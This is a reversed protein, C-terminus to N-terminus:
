AVHASKYVFTALDLIQSTTLTRRYGTMGKGGSTINAVIAAYSKKTYDLDPGIGSPSLAHAANLLHCAGCDHAIFLRKGNKANGMAPPSTTASAGGALIAAAFLAAPLAKM